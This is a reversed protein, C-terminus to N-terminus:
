ARLLMVESITTVTTAMFNAAESQTATSMTCCLRALPRNDVKCKRARYNIIPCRVAGHLMLETIMSEHLRVFCGM